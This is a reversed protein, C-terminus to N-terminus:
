LGRNFYETRSLLMLDLEAQVSSCASNQAEIVEAAKRLLTAQVVVSESLSYFNIYSLPASWTTHTQPLLFSSSADDLRGAELCLLISM